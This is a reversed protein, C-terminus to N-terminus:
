PPGSGHWPTAQALRMAEAQAKFPDFISALDVQFGELVMSELFGSTGKTRLVFHGDKADYVELAKGKPDVIWYERVGSREYDDFKVGRDNAQTSPSLVEVVLDPVPFEMQDGTFTQARAKCFFVVDPEYDNRSFACLAKEDLVLGRDHKTAYLSLLQALHKRALLHHLSAPSHYVVVGNIFEAKQDPQLTERFGQRRAKEIRLVASIEEALRPLDPLDLLAERLPHMHDTLEKKSSM